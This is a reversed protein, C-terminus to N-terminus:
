ADEIKVGHVGDNTLKIRLRGGTVTPCPITNAVFFLTADNENLVIKARNEKFEEKPFIFVNSYIKFDNMYKEDPIGSAGNFNGLNIFCVKTVGEPLIFEEIGSSDKDLYYYNDIKRELNKFFDVLVVEDKLENSQKILKVGLFLISIALILVFIWTFIVQVQGKKMFIM